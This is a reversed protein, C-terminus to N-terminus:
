LSNHSVAIIKGLGFDSPIRSGEMRRANKCGVIRGNFWVVTFDDAEIRKPFPNDGKLRAEAWDHQIKVVAQEDDSDHKV